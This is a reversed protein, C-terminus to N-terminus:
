LFPKMTDFAQKATKEAPQAYYTPNFYECSVYGDYGIGKVSKMFGTLDFVGKGPWVRDADQLQNLPKKVCDNFHVLWLRDKPLEDLESLKNEGLFFHFTDIVLGGPALNDSEVAELIKEALKISRVSNNPFGLPEFGINFNYRDGLTRLLHLRTVTTAFFKDPEVVANEVFSPVAIIMNCGIENGIKMLKETYEMMGKFESEPCLSFLEIANFSVVSLNLDSLQKSLQAVSHEKVYALVTDRFLEVGQFGAQASVHLFQEMPVPRLTNQNIAPKLQM